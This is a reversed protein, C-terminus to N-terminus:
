DASRYRGALSIYPDPPPRSKVASIRSTLESIENAIENRRHVDSTVAYEEVFLDLLLTLEEFSVARTCEM